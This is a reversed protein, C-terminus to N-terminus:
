DTILADRSNLHARVRRLDDVSLASPITRYERITLDLAPPAEGTRLHALLNADSNISTRVTKTSSRCSHSSGAASPGATSCPWVASAATSPERRTREGLLPAPTT